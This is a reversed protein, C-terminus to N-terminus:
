HLQLQEIVGCGNMDIHAHAACIIKFKKAAESLSGLMKLRLRQASPLQAM